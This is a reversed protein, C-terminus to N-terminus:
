GVIIRYPQHLVWFTNTFLLKLISMGVSNDEKRFQSYVTYNYHTMGVLATIILIPIGIYPMGLISFFLGILAGVTLVIIYIHIKLWSMRFTNSEEDVNHTESFDYELNVKFKKEKSHTPLEKEPMMVQFQPAVNVQVRDQVQDQVQDQVKEM